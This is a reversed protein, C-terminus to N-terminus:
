SSVVSRAVAERPGSAADLARLWQGADAQTRSEARGLRKVLALAIYLRLDDEGM